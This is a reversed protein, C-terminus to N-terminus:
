YAGVMMLFILLDSSTTWVIMKRERLILFFSLSLSNPMLLHIFSIAPYKVVGDGDHGLCTVDHSLDIHSPISVYVDMDDVDIEQFISVFDELSLVKM